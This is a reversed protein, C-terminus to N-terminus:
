APPGGRFRGILEELSRELVNTSRLRKRLRMEGDAPSTTDDLAPWLGGRDPPPAGRGKGCNLHTVASRPTVLRSTRIKCPEM